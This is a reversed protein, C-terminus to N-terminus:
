NFGDYYALAFHIPPAYWMLEPYVIARRAALLHWRNTYTGDARLLTQGILLNRLCAISTLRRAGLSPSLPCSLVIEALRNEFRAVRRRYRGDVSATPGYLLQAYALDNKPQRSLLVQLMTQDSTSVSAMISEDDMWGKGNIISLCNVYELVQALM